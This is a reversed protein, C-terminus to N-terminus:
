VKEAVVEMIDRTNIPINLNTLRTKQAVQLAKDLVTTNKGAAKQNCIIQNAMSGVNRSVGEYRVSKIEIGYKKLLLGVTKPSWYYVHTPPHIMRWKGKRFRPVLASIDGTTFAISGGPKLIKAIKAIYPEPEALHEIVDWMFVSDVSNDKFKHELFDKNYANLGLKKTAYNIGDDTVDFGVHNAVKDKILNLFYGYACGIEVVNADPKVMNTLRKIRKAFNHELAARDAEYDSYEMGFFYDKQYLDQVEKWTPIEEASVLGCNTCQVLKPCYSTFEKGDCAVCKEVKKGM